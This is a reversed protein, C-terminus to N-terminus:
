VDVVLMFLRITAGGWYCLYFVMCAREKWKAISELVGFLGSVTFCLMMRRQPGKLIMRM